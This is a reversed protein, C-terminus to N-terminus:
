NTNKPKLTIKQHGCDILLQYGQDGIQSFVDFGIVNNTPNSHREQMEGLKPSICFILDDISESDFRHFDIFLNQNDFCELKKLIKSDISTVDAGTALLASVEESFCGNAGCYHINLRMYPRGDDGFWADGLKSQTPQTNVQIQDFISNGM